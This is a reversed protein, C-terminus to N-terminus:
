KPTNDDSHEQQPATLQPAAVPAAEILTVSQSGPLNIQLVPMLGQHTVEQKPGYLRAERREAIWSWARFEERGRALPLPADALRMDELTRALEGNILQRRAEDAKPDDLLWYRLARGSLGYSAAIQDTSEGGRLRLYSDSLIRQRQDEPIKSVFQGNKAAQPQRNVKKKPGRKIGEDIRVHVERDM